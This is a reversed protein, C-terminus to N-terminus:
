HRQGDTHRQDGVHIEQGCQDEHRRHVRSRQESHGNGRNEQVDRTGGRGDRRREVAKRHRLGAAMVLRETVRQGRRANALREGVRQQHEQHLRDCIKGDTQPRWFHQDNGYPANHQDGPHPLPM